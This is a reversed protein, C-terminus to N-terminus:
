FLFHSMSGQALSLGIKIMKTRSFGFLNESESERLTWQSMVSSESVCLLMGSIRDRWPEARRHAARRDAARDAGADVALLGITILHGTLCYLPAYDPPTSSVDSTEAYM